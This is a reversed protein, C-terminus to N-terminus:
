STLIREATFEALDLIRLGKRKQTKLSDEFNQVCFPCTTVIADVGREAAENVRLDSFREGVETELFM